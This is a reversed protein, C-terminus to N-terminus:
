LAWIYEKYKFIYEYMKNEKKDWGAIISIGWHEQVHLLGWVQNPRLMRYIKDYENVNGYKLEIATFKWDKLAVIDFPKLTYGIDPLKYVWYWDEKLAKIYDAQFDKENKYNDKFEFPMIM